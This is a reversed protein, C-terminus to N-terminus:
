QGPALLDDAVMLNLLYRKSAPEGGISALVQHATGDKATLTLRVSTAKAHFGLHSMAMKIRHLSDGSMFTDLLLGYAEDRALGLMDAGTQNLEHISLAPTITFCGVPQHDYLEVQRQLAAELEVRADQLEQAQLELEVQHVQLEHLLTLADSATRPSSAMTHLVALADVAGAPQGKAAAPGTLKSAARARLELTHAPDSEQFSRRPMAHKKQDRATM